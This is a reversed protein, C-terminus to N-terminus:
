QGPIVVIKDNKLLPHRGSNPQCGQLAMPGIHPVMTQVMWHKHLSPTPLMASLTSLTLLPLGKSVDFKMLQNVQMNDMGLEARLFACQLLSVSQMSNDVLSLEWKKSVQQPGGRLGLWQPELVEVGSNSNGRLVVWSLATAPERVM